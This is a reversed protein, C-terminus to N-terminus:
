SMQQIPYKLLLSDQQRRIIQFALRLNHRELASLTTPDLHYDPDSGAAIQRAHHRLQISGLFDLADLLNEGGRGSVTGASIAATLRERTAVQPLGAALSYLRAMQVIAATGGAKINLTKKYDGEKDLVFGRFFGLPPQRNAALKALHALFRGSGRAAEPLGEQLRAFLTADGHLPRMDFFVQAHLLADGDPEHIWDHFYRQWDALPRRWKETAAMMEGPCAPFGCEALGDRVREAIERFYPEHEPRAADALIMASDQDGAPGLEYRGQSGLVVYCYPVPPPGLEEEALELLRRAIADATATVVRGVDAPAANRAAFQEVVAPLKAALRVVGGVTRRRSIDAALYVPNAQVVRMIDSSTIMGVPRGGETVPLHHVNRSIMELLVEFALAEGDVVVPEPVMIDTVPRTPDGGAAVVKTRLDRDTLIGVPKEGDVILLASVQHDTMIEAAERISVTPPASIIERHIMEGVCTRLIDGGHAGSRASVVAMRIRATQEGFFARFDPHDEAVTDFVARPMVLTLTDEVATMSYRSPENRALSSYGFSRGVDRRDLLHGDADRVDVAGSRITFLSDNVDGAAIIVEGRRHYVISLRGPIAALTEAPLVDFPTCGALFDRIEVLEVDM